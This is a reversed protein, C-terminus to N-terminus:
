LSTHNFILYINTEPQIGSCKKEGRLHFLNIIPQLMMENTVMYGLKEQYLMILDPLRIIKHKKFSEDASKMNKNNIIKLCDQQLRHLSNQSTKLCMTGWVNMNYILHSYVHVYYIKLLCSKPLLNKTNSLLRKKNLIKNYLNNTHEKWNLCEDVLVGLFQTHQSNKIKTGEVNIIFPKDGLWFKLLVTKDVNLSLKNAKYWDILISM